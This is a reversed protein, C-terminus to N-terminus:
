YTTQISMLKREILKKCAPLTGVHNSKGNCGIGYKDRASIGLGGNIIYYPTKKDNWYTEFYGTKIRVTRLM